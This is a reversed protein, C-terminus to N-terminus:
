NNYKNTSEEDEELQQIQEYKTSKRRVTPSRSKFKTSICLGCTNAIIVIIMCVGDYGNNIKFTCLM